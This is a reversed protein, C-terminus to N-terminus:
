HAQEAASTRGRPEQLSVFGTLFNWRSMGAGGVYLEYPDGAVWNEKSVETM